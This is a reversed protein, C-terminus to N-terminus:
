QDKCYWCSFSPIGAPRDLAEDSLEEVFDTADTEQQEVKDSMRAEEFAEGAWDICNNPRSIDEAACSATPLFPLM